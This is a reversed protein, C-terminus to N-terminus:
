RLAGDAVAQLRRGTEEMEDAVMRLWARHSRNAPGSNRRLKAQKRYHHAAIVCGGAANIADIRTITVPILDCQSQDPM